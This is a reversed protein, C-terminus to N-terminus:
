DTRASKIMERSLINAAAAAVPFTISGSSKKICYSANRAELLLQGGRRIICDYFCIQTKPECQEARHRAAKQVARNGPPRGTLRRKPPTRPTRRAAARQAHGVKHRNDAIQHPPASAPIAACPNRRIAKNCFACARANKQTQPKRHACLRRQSLPNDPRRQQQRKGKRVAGFSDEGIAQDRCQRCVAHYPHEDQAFVHSFGSQPGQGRAGHRGCQQCHYQRGFFARPAFPHAAPIDLQQERQRQIKVPRLHKQRQQCSTCKAKQPCQRSFLRARRRNWEARKQCPARPDCQAPARREDLPIQAKELYM